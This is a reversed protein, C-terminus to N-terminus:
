SDKVDEYFDAVTKNYTDRWKNDSIYHAHHQFSHFTTLHSKLLEELESSQMPVEIPQPRKWHEYQSSLHMLDCEDVFGSTIRQTLFFFRFVEEGLFYIQPENLFDYSTADLVKVLHCISTFEEKSVQYFREVIANNLTRLLFASNLFRFSTLTPDMPHLHSCLLLFFIEFLNKLMSDNFLSLLKGELNVVEAEGLSYADILAKTLFIIKGSNDIVKTFENKFKSAESEINSIGLERELLLFSSNNKIEELYKSSLFRTLDGTVNESLLKRQYSTQLNIILQQILTFYGNKGLITIFRKVIALFSKESNQYSRDPVIGSERKMLEIFFQDFGPSKQNNFIHEITKKCMKEKLLNYSDVDCLKIIENLFQLQMIENDEYGNYLQFSWWSLMNHGILYKGIICYYKVWCNSLDANLKVFQLLRDQTWKPNLKTLNGLYIKLLFERNFTDSKPTAVLCPYLSKLMSRTNKESLNIKNSFRQLFVHWINSVQISGSVVTTYIPGLWKGKFPLKKISNNELISLIGNLIAHFIRKVSTPELSKLYDATSFPRTLEELRKEMNLTSKNALVILLNIRNLLVSLPDGLSIDGIPIIREVTATSIDSCDLLNLYKNFIVTSPPQKTPSSIIYNKQSKLKEEEFDVFRRKKFTQNLLDILDKTIPWFYKTLSHNIFKFARILSIYSSGIDLMTWREQKTPFIDVITSLVQAPFRHKELRSWLNNKQNSTKVVTYLITYSESLYKMNEKSVNDDYIALLTFFSIIHDLIRSEIKEKMSTSINTFRSIELLMLQCAAIQFFHIPKTKGKLAYVKSRFTRHFDEIIGYLEPLNAYLLFKTINDNVNVLEIDSVGEEIIHKFVETLVSKITSLNLRSLLYIKDSMAIKVTDPPDLKRDLLLVELIMLLPVNSDKEIDDPNALDITM